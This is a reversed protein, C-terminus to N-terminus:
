FYLVDNVLDIFSTISLWLYGKFTQLSIIIFYELIKTLLFININM